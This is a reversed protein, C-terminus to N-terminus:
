DHRNSTQVRWLRVSVKFKTTVEAEVVRSEVSGADELSALALTVAKFDQYNLDIVIQDATKEQNGLVSLIRNSLQQVERAHKASQITNISIAIIALILVATSLHAKVSPNNVFLRALVAGFGLSFSGISLWETPSLNPIM